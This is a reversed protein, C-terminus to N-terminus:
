RLGVCQKMHLRRDDGQMGVSTDNCRKWDLFQINGLNKLCSSMFIKRANGTLGTAQSNCEKFWVTTFNQPSPEDEPFDPPIESNTVGDKPLRARDLSGRASCLSSCAPSLAKTLVYGSKFWLQLKCTKSDPSSVNSSIAQLSSGTWEATGRFNCGHGNHFILDIEVLAKGNKMPSVKVYEDRFGKCEYGLPTNAVFCLPQAKSYRGMIEPPTIAASNKSGENIEGRLKEIRESYSRELCVSDTCGDREKMWQKQAQKISDGQAQDKLAIKYAANLEEDLKSLGADACVLKEVKTSAKGCDFSAAQAAFGLVLGALIIGAIRKM